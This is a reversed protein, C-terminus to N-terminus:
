KLLIFKKTETFGEARMKYFYVGSSLNSGDFDIEYNGIAKEENVLNAIEKGLLDYVKLSVFSVKPISYNIKTIPNFPNPYNQFLNFEDIIINEREMTSSINSTVKFKYYGTDPCTRINNFISTDQLVCKFKITDGVELEEPQIDIYALLTTKDIDFNKTSNLNGNRFINYEVYLESALEPLPSEINVGLIYGFENIKRDRVSDVLSINKNITNIQITDIKALLVTHRYVYNDDFPDSIQNKRYYSYNLGIGDSFELTWTDIVWSPGQQYTTDAHMSYFLRNTGLINKISIGNSTWVKPFGLFYLVKTSNNPQNFDVAIHSSGDLYILLQKQLSDYSFYKDNYKYYTKNNFILSDSIVIKPYAYEEWGGGFNNYWEKFYEEQFQDGTKAPFYNQASSQSFTILILVAYIFKM